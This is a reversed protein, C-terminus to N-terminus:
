FVVGGMIMILGLSRFLALFRGLGFSLKYGRILLKEAANPWFGLTWLSLCVCYAIGLKEIIRSTSGMIHPPTDPPQSVAM